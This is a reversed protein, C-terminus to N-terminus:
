RPGPAAGIDRMAAEIAKREADNRANQRASELMGVAADRGYLRMLPKALTTADQALADDRINTRLVSIISEDGTAAARGCALWLADRLEGREAINAPLQAYALVLEDRMGARFFPLISLEAARATFLAPQDRMAAAALRAADADRGLLTLLELGREIKREVLAPRVLTELNEAGPLPLEGELRTAPPGLTILPDGLVAINDYRAPGTTPNDDFRVAAGFPFGMSLRGAAAPTPVFAQLYPEHVSGMYAYVGRELWRGAVTRRQAPAAASFSHVIHAIAPVSLVPVDGPLCRGPELDFFGQNGKTNVFILGADAPAAARQRWRVATGGPADDLSVEMGAQRLPEAAATADYQNWPEGTPYGDFLWAKDPLLFLACMARYAADSPTGFVQGCWAWRGPADAPGRRGLLGTTAIFGDNGAEIKAPCNLALTLADLGAGVGKWPLGTREAAEFLSRELEEAGERKFPRNVVRETRVWAIPQARGAALALAAPWAGDEADAAVLGLPELGMSKWVEMARAMDAGEAPAGWARAVAAEIMARRSADAAPWPPAVPAPSGNDAAAGLAGDWRVVSAPKFARVFRAIHERAEPTGDDLLVPYRAAPTWRAIAEVYAGPEQVIVVVPLVPINKRILRVRMGLKLAPPLDEFRMQRLPDAPQAPPRAPAVTALLAAALAALAGARHSRRPPSHGM